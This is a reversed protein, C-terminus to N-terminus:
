YEVSLPVLQPVITDLTGADDPVKVHVTGLVGDNVARTLIRLTESVVMASALSAANLSMRGGTTVRGFPASTRTAPISSVIRHLAVLRRLRRISYEVFLPVAQFRIVAFTEADVPMKAQVTGFVGDDWDRTRTLSATLPVKLSILLLENLIIVGERATTEGFPVSNQRTPLGFVITQRFEPTRKTLSSYEVFLPESQVVMASLMGVDRADSVELYVHLTGLMGEVAARTRMLSMPFGVMLAESIDSLIKVIKRGDIVTLTGM